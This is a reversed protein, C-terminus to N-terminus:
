CQRILEQLISKATLRTVHTFLLALISNYFQRFHANLFFGLYKWLEVSLCYCLCRRWLVKKRHSWNIEKKKLLFIPTFVSFLNGSTRLFLLYSPRLQFILYMHFCYYSDSVECLYFSWLFKERHLFGLRQRYLQITLWPFNHCSSYVTIIAKMTNAHVQFSSDKLLAAKQSSSRVRRLHKIQPLHHM